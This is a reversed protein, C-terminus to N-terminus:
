WKEFDHNPGVLRVLVELNRHRLLLRVQQSLGKLFRFVLLQSDCPHDADREGVDLRQPLLMSARVVPALGPRTSWM